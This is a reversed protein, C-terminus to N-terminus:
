PPNELGERVRYARRSEQTACGGCSANATRLSVEDICDDLSLDIVKNDADLRTTMQCLKVHMTCTRCDQSAFTSGPLTPGSQICANADWNCASAYLEKTRQEAQEAALKEEEARATANLNFVGCACFTPTTCDPPACTTNCLHQMPPNCTAQCWENSTGEQVSLCQNDAM